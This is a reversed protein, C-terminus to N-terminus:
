ETDEPTSSNSTDRSKQPKLWKWVLWTSWLLVLNVTVFGVYHYWPVHEASQFAMVSGWDVLLLLTLQAWFGTKIFDDGTMAPSAIVKVKSSDFAINHCFM